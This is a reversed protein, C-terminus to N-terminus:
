KPGLRVRLAIPGLRIVDGDRLVARSVPADNVLTPAKKTLAQVWYRGGRASRFLRAHRPAVSEAPLPLDCSRDGGLVLERDVLTQAAIREPPGDVLELTAQGEGSALTSLTELPIGIWYSLSHAIPACLGELVDPREIVLYAGRKRVIGEKTWTALVGAVSRRVVGLSQAISEQSLAVAPKDGIPPASTQIRAYAVILNAVRRELSAFLQQENRVAVCFAAALHQLHARMAAPHEDLFRDYDARPFRAITARDLAAVNELFPLQNFLEIDGYVVPARFLKVTLELGDPNQHFVRVSGALLVHLHDIPQGATVLQAGPAHEEAPYFRALMSCADRGAAAFIPNRMWLELEDAVRRV